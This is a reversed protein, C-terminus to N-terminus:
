TSVPLPAEGTDTEEIPVGTDENDDGNNGGNNGQTRDESNAEEENETNSASLDPRPAVKLGEVDTCGSFLLALALGLAPAWSRQTRTPSHNWPQIPTTLSSM